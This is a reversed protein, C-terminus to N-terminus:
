FVQCGPVFYTKVVDVSPYARDISNINELRENYIEYGEFDRGPNRESPRSGYPIKGGQHGLLYLGSQWGNPLSSPVIAM